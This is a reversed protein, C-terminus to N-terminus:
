PTYIPNPFSRIDLIDNVPVISVRKTKINNGVKAFWSDRNISWYQGNNLFAKTSYSVSDQYSIIPAIGTLLGTNSVQNILDTLSAEVQIDGSDFINMMNMMQGGATFWGTYQSIFSQWDRLRIYFVRDIENIGIKGTPITTDAAREFPEAPDSNEKIANCVNAIDNFMLVNNPLTQPGLLQGYDAVKLFANRTASPVNNSIMRNNVISYVTTITKKLRLHRYVFTYVDNWTANSRGYNPSLSIGSFNSYNNDAVYGAQGWATNLAAINPFMQQLWQRYGNQAVPSGDVLTNGTGEDLAYNIETSGLSITIDFGVVNKAIIETNYFDTISELYAKTYLYADSTTDDLLELSFMAQRLGYDPIQGNDFRKQSSATSWYLNNTNGFYNCSLNIRPLLFGKKAKVEAIQNTFQNRRKAAFTTKELWNEPNHILTFGLYSKLKNAYGKYTNIYPKLTVPFNQPTGVMYYDNPYVGNVQYDVGEGGACLIISQRTKLSALDGQWDYSSVGTEPTTGGSDNFTLPIINTDGSLVAVNTSKVLSGNKYFRVTYSAGPNIPAFIKVKNYTSTAEYTNTDLLSRNTFSGDSAIYDVEYADNNTVNAFIFFFKPGASYKYAATNLNDTPQPTPPPTVTSGGTSVYSGSPVVGAIASSIFRLEPQMGKLTVSNVTGGDSKFEVYMTADMNQAPVLIYLQDSGRKIKVIQPFPYHTSGGNITETNDWSTYSNLTKWDTWSGDPKKIRAEVDWSITKGSGWITSHQVIESYAKETYESARQEYLAYEGVTLDVRGPMWWNMIGDLLRGLWTRVYITEKHRLLNRPFGGDLTFKMHGDGNYNIIDAGKWQNSKSTSIYAGFEYMQEIFDYIPKSALTTGHTSDYTSLVHKMLQYYCGIRWGSYAFPWTKSHWYDVTRQNAPTGSTQGYLENYDAQTVGFHIDYEYFAFYDYYDFLNRSLNFTISGGPINPDSFTETASGGLMRHIDLSEIIENNTTSLIQAGSKEVPNGNERVNFKITPNTTALPKTDAWCIKINLDKNIIQRSMEMGLAVVMDWKKFLHVTVQFAAQDANAGGSIASNYIAAVSTTNKSLYSYFQVNKQEESLANYSNVGFWSYEVNIYIHTVKAGASPNQGAFGPVNNKLHNYFTQIPTVLTSYPNERYGNNLGFTTIFICNVDGRTAREEDTLSFWNFHTQGYEKMTDLSEGGFGDNVYRIHHGWLFNDGSAKKPKGGQFRKIKGLASLDYKKPRSIPFTAATKTTTIRPVEKDFVGSGPITEVVDVLLNTGDAQKRAITIGNPM